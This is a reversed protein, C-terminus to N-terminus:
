KVLSFVYFMERAIQQTREDYKQTEQKTDDFAKPDDYTIAFRESASPVFPCSQDAESCVMVAVYNEQPNFKDEFKKSFGIIEPKRNSYKVSYKTNKDDNLKKIEFGARKLAAVSRHNFATVETGGSYSNFNDIGYYEAAAAAWFQSIHSRRSNHTCIFIFDMKENNKKAKSIYESMEELIKKRENPIKDFETIAKEAYKKLNPLLDKPTAESSLNAVLLVALISFILKLKMFSELLTSIYIIKNIKIKLNYFIKM